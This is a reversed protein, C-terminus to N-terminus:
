ITRGYLRRHLFYSYYLIDYGINPFINHFYVLFIIIFVGRYEMKLFYLPSFDYKRTLLIM